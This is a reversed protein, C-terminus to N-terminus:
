TQQDGKGLIEGTEEDVQISEEAEDETLGVAHFVKDQLQM